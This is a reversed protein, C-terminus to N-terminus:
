ICVLSAKSKSRLAESKSSPCESGASLNDLEVYDQRSSGSESDTEQSCLRGSLPDGDQIHSGFQRLRKYVSALEVIETWNRVLFQFSREVSNFASVLRQMSGLTIGGKSICPVLAIYPVVVGFQLYSYKAVDFYMFNLYLRFYSDRVAQFLEKVVDPGAREAQDEGYVLEKRFAAEVLQNQFELGPLRMGVLALGVTGFLAWLLTLIVLAHPVEGFFPLEKVQESLQLLIPLFAVLTLVSQLFTAGIDEVMIAFRRTDEQVRQSAGEIHRLRTWHKLYYDNMANRWRFTWHKTFFSLFVAVLIYIAAIESFTFIYGYLEQRTVHTDKDKSLAKQLLDYFDGFWANVRVDLHVQYWSGASIVIIGAWSWVLWENDCFFDRWM